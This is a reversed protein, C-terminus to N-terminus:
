ADKAMATAPRFPDRRRGQSPENDGSGSRGPASSRTKRDANFLVTIPAAEDDSVVEGGARVGPAKTFYCARKGAQVMAGVATKDRFPAPM